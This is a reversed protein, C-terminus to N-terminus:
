KGLSGIRRTWKGDGSARHLIKYVFTTRARGAQLLRGTVVRRGSGSWDKNSEDVIIKVTWIWFISGGDSGAGVVVRDPFYCFKEVLKRFGPM